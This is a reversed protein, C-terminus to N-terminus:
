LTENKKDSHCACSFRGQVLLPTHILCENKLQLFNNIADLILIGNEQIIGLATCEGVKEAIESYHVCSICYKKM